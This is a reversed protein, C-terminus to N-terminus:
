AREALLLEGVAAVEHRAQQGLAAVGEARLAEVDLQGFRRIPGEHARLVLLHRDFSRTAARELM